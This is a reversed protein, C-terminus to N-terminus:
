RQHLTTHNPSTAPLKEQRWSSPIIIGPKLPLGPLRGRPVLLMQEPRQAFLVLRFLLSMSSFSSFSLSTLSVWNKEFYALYNRMGNNLAEAACGEDEDEDWVPIDKQIELFTQVIDERPVMSLSWLKRHFVQVDVDSNYVQLLGHKAM